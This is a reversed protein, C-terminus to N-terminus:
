MSLLSSYQRCPLILQSPTQSPAATQFVFNSALLLASVSVAIIGHYDLSVLWSVLQDTLLDILRTNM